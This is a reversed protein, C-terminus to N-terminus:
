SSRCQRRGVARAIRSSCCRGTPHSVRAHPRNLRTSSPSRGHTRSAPRRIARITSCPSGSTGNEEPVTTFSKGTTLSRDWGTTPDAGCPRVWSSGATSPLTRADYVQVINPHTLRANIRSEQVFRKRFHVDNAFEASVVKLAVLRGFKKQVALYVRAMGGRGIEKQVQFGPLEM